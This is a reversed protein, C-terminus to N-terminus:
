WRKGFFLNINIYFSLCTKKNRIEAMIPLEEGISKGFISNSGIKYGDLSVGIELSKIIEDKKSFEFNFGSKLYGGIQMTMENFGKFYSTRGYISYPTHSPNDSDYRETEIYLENTLDDQYIIELYVPKLFAFSVGCSAIASVSIGSFDPKDFIIREKGYGTRLIFTSNIKGYDYGKADNFFTNITRVQKPHKVSTIDVEVFRQWRVNNNWVKRGHFGWGLSHINVGFYRQHKYLIKEPRELPEQPFVIFPVFFLIFCINKM